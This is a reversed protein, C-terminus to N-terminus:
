KKLERYLKAMDELSIAEARTTPAIEARLLADKALPKDYALKLNNSVTKRKQAFMVKLFAIFGLEDVGLEEFRPTMKM